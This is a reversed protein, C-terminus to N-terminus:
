NPWCPNLFPNDSWPTTTGLHRVDAGFGGDDSVPCGAPTHVVDSRVRPTTNQVFAVNQRAPATDCAALSVALAVALASHTFRTTM